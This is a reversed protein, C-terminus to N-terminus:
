PVWNFPNSKPVTILCAASSLTSFFFLSLFLAAEGFKYHTKRSSILALRTKRQLTFCLLIAVCPFDGILRSSLLNM